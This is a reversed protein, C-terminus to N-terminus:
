PRKWGSKPRQLLAKWKGAQLMQLMKKVFKQSKKYGVPYVGRELYGSIANYQEDEM